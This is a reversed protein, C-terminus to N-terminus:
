TSWQYQYNYVQLESLDATTLEYSYEALGRGDRNSVPTLIKDVISEFYKKVHTNFFMKHTLGESTTWEIILTRDDQLMNSLAEARRHPEAIFKVLDDYFADGYELREGLLEGPQTFERIKVPKSVAKIKRRVAEEKKRSVRVDTLLLEAILKDRWKSARRLLINNNISLDVRGDAILMSIVDFSSVKKFTSIKLLKVHSDNKLFERLSEADGRHIIYQFYSNVYKRYNEPSIHKEFVHLRPYFLKTLKCSMLASAQLDAVWSEFNKHFYFKELGAARETFFVKKGFGGTSKKTFEGEAIFTSNPFNEVRSVKVVKKRPWGFSPPPEKFKKVESLLFDWTIDGCGFFTQPNVYCMEQLFILSQAINSADSTMFQFIKNYTTVNTSTTPDLRRMVFIYDECRFQSITGEYTFGHPADDLLGLDRMAVLYELQGLYVAQSILHHKPTKELEREVKLKWLNSEKCFDFNKTSTQCFALIENYDNEIIAEIVLEKPLTNM